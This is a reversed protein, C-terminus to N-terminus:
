TRPTSQHRPNRHSVTRAPIRNTGPPVSYACRPGACFTSREQRRHLVINGATTALGKQASTVSLPYVFPPSSMSDSARPQWGRKEQIDLVGIQRAFM